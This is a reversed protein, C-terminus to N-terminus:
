EIQEKINDKYYNQLFKFIFKAPIKVSLTFM